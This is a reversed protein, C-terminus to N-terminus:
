LTPRLVFQPLMIIVYADGVGATGM